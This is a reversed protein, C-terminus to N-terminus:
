DSGRNQVSPNIEVFALYPLNALKRLMIAYAIAFTAMASLFYGYGYWEFGAWLTAASAATNAVLFFVVLKLALKRLDFYALVILVFLLLAHFLAGLVGFRFIAIQQFGLGLAAFIAPATLIALYSLAGQLVVLVRFGEGVSDM